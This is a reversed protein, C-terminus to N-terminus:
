KQDVVREASLRGIRHLSGLERLEPIRRSNTLRRNHPPARAVLAPVRIGGSATDIYKMSTSPPWDVRITVGSRWESSTSAPYLERRLSGPRITSAIYSAPTVRM